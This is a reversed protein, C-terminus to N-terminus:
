SSSPLLPSTKQLSLSPTSPPNVELVNRSKHALTQVEMLNFGGGPWEGGRGRGGLGMGAAWPLSCPRPIRLGFLFHKAKSPSLLRHGQSVLLHGPTVWLPTDEAGWSQPCRSDTPRERFSTTIANCTYTSQADHFYRDQTGTHRLMQSCM